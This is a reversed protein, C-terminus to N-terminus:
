SPIRALVWFLSNREGKEPDGPNMTGAVPYTGHYRFLDFLGPIARSARYMDGGM